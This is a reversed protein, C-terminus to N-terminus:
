KVMLPIKSYLDTTFGIMVNIIWPALVALTLLVVLLKPVFSLSQEQIQTAAQLISIILGVAMGVGLIPVSIILVIFLADRVIQLVFSDTM